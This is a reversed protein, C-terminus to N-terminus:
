HYKESAISSDINIGKIKDKWKKVEESNLYGTNLCEGNVFLARGPRMLKNYEIHDIIHEDRVINVVHNGSAYVGVSIHNRKIKQKECVDGWTVKSGNYVADKILNIEIRSMSKRSM